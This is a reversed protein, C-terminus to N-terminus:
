PQVVGTTWEVCRSREYRTIAAAGALVIVSPVVFCRVPSACAVIALHRWILWPSGHMIEALPHMNFLFAADQAFYGILSIAAPAMLLTGVLFAGVVATWHFFSRVLDFEETPRTRVVRLEALSAAFAPVVTLLTIVVFIICGSALRYAAPAPGPLFLAASAGACLAGGIAWVALPRTKALADRVNRTRQGRRLQRRLQDPDGFETFAMRVADHLTMGIATKSAVCEDLHDRWEDAIEFRREMSLGSGSLIGRIWKDVTPLNRM